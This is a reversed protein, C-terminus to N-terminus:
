MMRWFNHKGGDTIVYYKGLCKSGPKTQLLSSLFCVFSFVFAKVQMSQLACILGHCYNDVYCVSICNEGSGLVRLKGAEAAALFNPLFLPDFPGYVQHPAVAITMLADSNAKCIEVEAKAKTEAYAELFQGPQCIQM